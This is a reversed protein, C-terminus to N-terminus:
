QLANSIEHNPQNEMATREHFTFSVLAHSPTFIFSWTKKVDSKLRPSLDTEHDM